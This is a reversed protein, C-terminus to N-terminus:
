SPDSAFRYHAILQGLKQFMFNENTLPATKGSPRCVTKITFEFSSALTYDAAIQM